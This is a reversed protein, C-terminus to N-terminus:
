RRRTPVDPLLDRPGDWRPTELAEVSSPALLSGAVYTWARCTRADAREVDLLVRVYLSPRGPEYGEYEDLAALPIRDSPFWLLEGEVPLEDRGSAITLLGQLAPDAGGAAAARRADSHADATGVAHVRAAPVILVPYGDTHLYLRGRCRAVEAERAEACWRAGAAYGRKLTGYAFLPFEPEM